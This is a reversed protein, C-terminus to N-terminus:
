HKFPPVPVGTVEALRPDCLYVTQGADVGNLRKYM